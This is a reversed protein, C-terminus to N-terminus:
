KKKVPMEFEQSSSMIACAYDQSKLPLPDHSEEQGNKEVCHTAPDAQVAHFGTVAKSNEKMMSKETTAIRYYEPRKSTQSWPELNTTVAAPVLVEVHM